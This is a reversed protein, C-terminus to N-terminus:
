MIYAKGPTVRAAHVTRATQTRAARGPEGWSLARESQRSYIGEAYRPLRTMWNYQKYFNTGGNGLAFCAQKLEPRHQDAKPFYISRGLRVKLWAQSRKKGRRAHFVFSTNPTLSTCQLRMGDKKSLFKDHDTKTWWRYLFYRSSSIARRPSGQAM